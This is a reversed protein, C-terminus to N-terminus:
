VNIPQATAKSVAAECLLLFERTAGQWYESGGTAKIAAQCAKLLEPAAAILCANAAIKQDDWIMGCGPRSRCSCVQKDDASWVNNESTANWPAPSIM